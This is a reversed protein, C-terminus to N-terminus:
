STYSTARKFVRPLVWFIVLALGVFCFIKSIVPVIPQVIMVGIAMALVREFLRLDRLFFGSIGLVFISIGLALIACGLGLDALPTGEGLFLSKQLITFPIIWLVISRGTTLWGTSMTPTGAISAAVYSAMCVPPTLPALVACYFIFMHLQVPVYDFAMLITPAAIAAVAVYTPSLPVAMGLAVCLLFTVLLVLYWQEIGGLILAGIKMHLGTGLLAGVFIGLCEIMIFLPMWSRAFSYLFDGTKIKTLRTRRSFFTLAILAIVAWFAALEPQAFYLLAVILAVVALSLHWTGKIVKKVEEMPPKWKQVRERLATFHVFLFTTFYWFFAPILAVVCIHLYPIRLIEAMLFAGIGMIPPMLAGGTSAIAEVSAAIKPPYGIKKMLPITFSGTAAVNAVPSGSIMGFLGSTVVAIKAPGGTMHGFIGQAAAIFLDGLGSTLLLCAFILFIAILRVSLDAFRGFLGEGVDTFLITAGFTPPFYAHGWTGSIHHGLFVYAITVITIGLIIPGGSTHFVLGALGVLCIAFLYVEAQTALHFNAVIKDEFFMIWLPGSIAMSLFLTHFIRALKGKPMYLLYVLIFCLTIPIGRTLYPSLPLYGLCYFNFLVYTGSFFIIWSRKFHINAQLFAKFKSFKDKNPDILDRIGM